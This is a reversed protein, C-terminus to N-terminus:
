LRLWPYRARWALLNETQTYGEGCEPCVGSEKGDTLPYRCWRCLRGGSWVVDSAGRRRGYLKILAGVIATAMSAALMILARPRELSGLSGLLVWGFGVLGVLMIALGWAELPHARGKRMIEPSSM